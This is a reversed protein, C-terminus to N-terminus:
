LSGQTVYMRCPFLSVCAAFRSQISVYYQSGKHAKNLTDAPIGLPLVGTNVKM